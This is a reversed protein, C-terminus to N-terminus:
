SSKKMDRIAQISLRVLLIACLFLGLYAVMNLYIAYVSNMFQSIALLAVSVIGFTIGVMLLVLQSFLRTVFLANAKDSFIDHHLIIKGSEVKKFLQDIRRPIRRLNPIILAVEEELREMAKKPEKFPQMFSEKIYDSSFQKAEDFIEFDPDIIKLTGDLTVFARLAMSVSPYFRLGFERVVTFLTYILEDTPVNDVYSIKLLTDDITQEMVLEDADSANEVLKLIGDVVADANVQHIGILFLKLGEQQPPALRGVAGFDLLTIKETRRDIYINGPHPDAHFIGSVLVQELFTFLVTRAYDTRNRESQEMLTAMTAVSAGEVYQMVLVNANSYKLYVRPITVKEINDKMRASIQLMNRAEIEFDIEERLAHAFGIALEKFGLSEAWSSKSSVWTAFEVLIDLDEAMVEKVDPRLIKVVVQENTERLVAKHVQGISAAAIPKEDFYSFVSDIPMKLYKELLPKVSDTPLPKVGSQLKELEDIVAPPLLETRTSLVQGFKVFIGGCQELTDHMAKAIERETDRHRAYKVTQTVGNKMAISVVQRLRKQRKWASRLKKWISRKGVRDGNENLEIPDFLEFFLYLLMSILLMSGVWLLTAVNMVNTVIEDPNLNADRLYSYWFIFTTFAVSILVSLIRKLLNINPGILRGSVFYIFIAIVCTQIIFQLGSM